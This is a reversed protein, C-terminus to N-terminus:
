PRGGCASDFETFKLAVAPVIQSCVSASRIVQTLAGGRPTRCATRCATLLASEDSETLCVCLDSGDEWTWSACHALRICQTDCGDPPPLHSSPAAFAGAASTLCLPAESSGADPALVDPAADTTMDAAMDSEDTSDIRSPNDDEICGCLLACAAAAVQSNRAVTRTTKM